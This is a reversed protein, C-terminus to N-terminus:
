NNIPSFTITHEATMGHIQWKGAVLIMRSTNTNEDEDELIPRVVVSDFPPAEKELRIVEYETSKGAITLTVHQHLQPFPVTYVIIQYHIGDAATFLNPFQLMQSQHENELTPQVEPRARQLMQMAAEPTMAVTTTTRDVMQVPPQQQRQPSKPVFPTPQIIGANANAIFQMLTPEKTKPFIWGPKGGLNKNFDGGERRLDIAWPKTEGYVAIGNKYYVANLQPNTPATM